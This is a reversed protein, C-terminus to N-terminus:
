ETLRPRASIYFLGGLGRLRFEIYQKGNITISSTYVMRNYWGPPADYIHEYYFVPEIIHTKLDVGIPLNSKPIRLKIGGLPNDKISGGNIPNAMLFPTIPALIEPPPPLGVEEVRYFGVEDLRTNSSLLEVSLGNATSSTDVITVVKGETVTKLSIKSSVRISYTKETSWQEDSVKIKVLQAKGLDDSTPKWHLEYNHITMGKPGAILTYVLPSYNAYVFYKAYIPINSEQDVVLPRTILVDSLVLFNGDKLQVDEPNIGAYTSDKSEIAELSIKYDRKNKTFKGKIVEFLNKDRITATITQRQNWNNTSFTIKRISENNSNVIDEITDSFDLPITVDETPKSNLVVEFNIVFKPNTTSGLINSVTVGVKPTNIAIPKVLTQQLSPTIPELKYDFLGNSYQKNIVLKYKGTLDETDRHTKMYDYTLTQLDIVSESSDSAKVPQAAPIVVKQASPKSEISSIFVIIPVLCTGIALIYFDRKSISKSMLSSTKNFKYYKHTYAVKENITM